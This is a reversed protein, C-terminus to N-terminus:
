TQCFFVSERLSVPKHKSMRRRPAACSVRPIIFMVFTRFFLSLNLMGKREAEDQVKDKNSKFKLGYGECVENPSALM